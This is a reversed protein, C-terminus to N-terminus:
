GMLKTTCLVRQKNWTHVRFGGQKDRPLFVNEGGEPGIGESGGRKKSRENEVSSFSSPYFTALRHPLLRVSLSLRPFFSSPFFSQGENSSKRQSSSSSFPALYWIQFHWRWRGEEEELKGLRREHIEEWVGRKGSFSPLFFNSGEEREGRGEAASATNFSRKRRGGGMGALFRWKWREIWRRWCAPPAM